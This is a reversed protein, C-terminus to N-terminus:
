VIAASIGNNDYAIPKGDVIYPYSALDFHAGVEYVGKLLSEVLRNARNRVLEEIESSYEDALYETTTELALRIVADVTDRLPKMVREPELEAMIKEQITQRHDDDLAYPSTTKEDDMEMIREDKWSIFAFRGMRPYQNGPRSVRTRDPLGAGGCPASSENEPRSEPKITEPIRDNKSLHTLRWSRYVM